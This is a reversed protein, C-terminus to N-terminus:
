CGFVNSRRPRSSRASVCPTGTQRSPCTSAASTRASGRGTATWRVRTPASRTSRSSRKATPSPPRMRPVDATAGGLSRLRYLQVSGSRLLAALEAAFAPTIVNLLGSRRDARGPRPLTSTMVGAYPTVVVVQRQVLPALEVFPELRAAITDRDASDVVVAITLALPGSDGRGALIM